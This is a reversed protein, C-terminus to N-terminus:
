RSTMKGPDYRAEHKGFIAGMERSEVVNFQPRKVEGDPILRHISSGFWRALCEFM